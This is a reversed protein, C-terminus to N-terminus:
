VKKFCEQIIKDFTSWKGSEFNEITKLICEGLIPELTTYLANDREQKGTKIYQLKKANLQYSPLSKIKPISVDKDTILFFGYKAILYCDLSKLGHSYWLLTEFPSFTYLQNCNNILFENISVNLENHLCFLFSKSDLLNPYYQILNNVIFKDNLKLIM